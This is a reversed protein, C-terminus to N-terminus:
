KEKNQALWIDIAKNAKSIFRALFIIGFVVAILLLVNVISVIIQVLTQSDLGFIMTSNEEFTMNPSNQIQPAMVLLDKPPPEYTVVSLDPEQYDQFIQVILIEPPAEYSIPLIEEWEFRAAALDFYVTGECTNVIITTDDYLDEEIRWRVTYSPGISTFREASEYDEIFADRMVVRTRIGYSFVEFAYMSYPPFIRAFHKMDASFHFNSEYAFSSLDEVEYILRREDGIIEYLAAYADDSREELYPIFVFVKNECDSIIEFPVPMSWCAAAPLAGSFALILILCFCFLSKRM